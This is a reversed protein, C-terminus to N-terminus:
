VSINKCWNSRRLVSTSLTWKVMGVRFGRLYEGLFISRIMFQCCIANIKRGCCQFCFADSLNFGFCVLFCFSIRKDGGRLKPHLDFKNALYVHAFGEGRLHCELEVIRTSIHTSESKKTLHVNSILNTQLFSYHM